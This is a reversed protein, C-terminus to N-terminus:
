VTNILRQLTERFRIIEYNTMMVKLKFDCNAYKQELGGGM